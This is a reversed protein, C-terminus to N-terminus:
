TEFKDHRFAYFARKFAAEKGYAWGQIMEFSHLMEHCWLYADGLTIRGSLRQSEWNLEMNREAVTGSKITDIFTIQDGHLYGSQFKHHAYYDGVSKPEAKKLMEDVRRSYVTYEKQLKEVIRRKDSESIDGWVHTNRGKVIAFLKDETNHYDQYAQMRQLYNKIRKHRKAIWEDRLAFGEVIYYRLRIHYDLLARSLM